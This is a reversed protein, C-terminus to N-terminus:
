RQQAATNVSISAKSAQVKGRPRYMLNIDPSTNWPKPSPARRTRKQWLKSVNSEFEVTAYGRTQKLSLAFYPKVAALRSSPLFKLSQLPATRHSSCEPGCQFYGVPSGPGASPVYSRAAAIM